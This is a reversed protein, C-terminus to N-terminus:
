GLFSAHFDSVSMISPDEPFHKLNGTVLVAKASKAVELFKRDTEDNFKSDRLPHALIQLGYERIPSLVDAIDSENFGFKKYHLVKEYEDMIRADFVIQFDGFFVSQLINYAKRGPSLMASFLVNTDLVVNM